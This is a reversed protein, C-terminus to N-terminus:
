RKYFSSFHKEGKNLDDLTCKEITGQATSYYITGIKYGKRSSANMREICHSCPKAMTLKRSVNVRLSLLCVRKSKGEITIDRLKNICDQEAHITKDRRM